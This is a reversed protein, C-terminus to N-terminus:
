DNGCQEAAFLRRAEASLAPLPTDDALVEALTKERRRPTLPPTELEPRIDRMWRQFAREREEPSATPPTLLLRTDAEREAKAAAERIPKMRRDCAARLEYLTPLWNTESPIGRVPDTVDRVIAEPYDTLMAAIATVYVEADNAEGKRFCGLMIKTREAAVSLSCPRSPDNESMPKGSSLTRLMRSPNLKELMM